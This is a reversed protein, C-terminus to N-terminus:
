AGSSWVRYAADALSALEETWGSALGREIEIKFFCRGRIGEWPMHDGKADAVFAALNQRIESWPTGDPAVIDLYGRVRNGPPPVPVNSNALTGPNGYPINDPPIGSWDLPGHRYFFANVGEAGDMAVVRQASVYM